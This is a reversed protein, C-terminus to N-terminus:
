WKNWHVCKELTPYIQESYEANEAAYGIGIICPLIFGEPCGVAQLIEEPQSGTPIRMSCSLGENTTALFINEIVCWIESFDMVNRVGKENILRIDKKFLPLIICGAEAFMSHQKPFAIKIMEQTPNKPTEIACPLPEITSIADEKAKHDM